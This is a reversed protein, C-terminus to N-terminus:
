YIPTVDMNYFIFSWIDTQGEIIKSMPKGAGHGADTEIRILVPNPGKHKRQLEAIFKYSHAPVVRDDHDATTVLTAPYNVGEKINHLPSYSYLNHFHVSDESTGYDTAWAWGITFKHYRLMDLVGVAPLAVKFLEPRQTMVAGVLLGGNSGGQIALRQPSTYKNDILYEAAAIFDDFVNQRNLQAGAMHWERGYEGGGRTNAMAYIGNNELLVIRSVSFGPTLSANFGGYGYLLAPNNGDLELGKKHVIFMPVVTGDKSTFFAQKTEYAEPDFDVEPEKYAEYENTAVDYKFITTPYTFSTFSFFAINEDKKGSFRSFSGLTPLELEGTQKGDYDYIYVRSSADKMYHAFLKGGIQSVSRLVEEREPLIEQWSSPAPDQPNILVLRYKPAVYNTLVLIKGDIHDVARYDFDFGEAIKVFGLGPNKNDKIKLANGSTSESESIILFREDETTGAFFNRRPEDPNHYILVDESQPTGIEHYYIKHYENTGSLAEGPAPEDYRSYYFGNGEWSIGSFKVWKIHDDLNEGSEIEKVFIETWDSGAKSVRYAVYKANNCISVSSVSITGDECMKNPNIFERPEGDIGDQVYLVSHNQTGENKYFFYYNGEWFPTGYRPFDSLETLRENIKNRFPINELYDFTVENQAKVWAKTEKSNEDELWRYPDPVKVGFYEDVVDGMRTEPYEIKDRESCSYFMLQVILVALIITPKSKMKEQKKTLFKTIVKLSRIQQNFFM